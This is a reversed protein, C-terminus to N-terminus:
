PLPGVGFTVMYNHGNKQIDTLQSCEECYGAIYFTDPDPMTQKAGCHSCLWQQYVTAGDAIKAEAAQIVEDFPYLKM